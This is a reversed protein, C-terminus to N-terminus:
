NIDEKAPYDEDVEIFDSWLFDTVMDAHFLRTETDQIYNTAMFAWMRIKVPMPYDDNSMMDESMNQSRIRAHTPHPTRNTTSGIM